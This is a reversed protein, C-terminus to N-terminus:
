SYFSLVSQMFVRFELQLRKRSLFPPLTKKSLPKILMGPTLGLDDPVENGKMQFMRTALSQNGLQNGAGRGRKCQRSTSSFSKIHQKAILNNARRLSLQYAQPAAMKIDGPISLTPSSHFRKLICCHAHHYSLM